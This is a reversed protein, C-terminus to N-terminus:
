RVTCGKFHLPSENKQRSVGLGYIHIYVSWTMIVYNMGTWWDVSPSFVVALATLPILFMSLPHRVRM